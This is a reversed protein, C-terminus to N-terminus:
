PSIGVRNYGWAEAAQLVAELSIDRYIANHLRGHYAGVENNENVFLSHFGFVRIEERIIQGNSGVVGIKFVAALTAHENLNRHGNWDLLLDNGTRAFQRYYFGEFHIENNSSGRGLRERSQEYLEASVESLNVIEEGREVAVNLGSVPVSIYGNGGLVYDMEHLRTLSEETLRVIAVDGNRFTGNSEFEFRLASLPSPFVSTIRGEGLGSVGKFEVIVYRAIEEDTLIEPETLGWVTFTVRGTGTLKYGQVLMNYAIGGDYLELVVEDGNSLTGNGKVWFANDPFPSYSVVEAIGYGSLGTFEISLYQGIEDDSIRMPEQLGTVIFTQEGGKAGSSEAASIYVTIEDGNSLGTSKDIDVLINYQFDWEREILGHSDIFHTASGVGDFGHFHLEVYDWLNIQRQNPSTFLLYIVMLCTIGLLIFLWKKGKEHAAKKPPSVLTNSSQLPTGCRGCFNIEKGIRQGCKKCYM